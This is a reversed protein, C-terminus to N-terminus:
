GASLEWDLISMMRSVLAVRSTGTSSELSSKRPMSNAFDRFPKHRYTAVECPGSVSEDAPDGTVRVAFLSLIDCEPNNM